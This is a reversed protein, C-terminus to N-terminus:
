ETAGEDLSTWDQALLDAQSCLWPIRTKRGGDGVVVMYVYPETMKSDSDPLQLELWLRIGRDRRNGNWGPRTVREGNRLALVAYGIGREVPTM